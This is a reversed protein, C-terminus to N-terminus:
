KNPKKKEEEQQQQQMQQQMQEQMQQQMMPNMQQPPADKVDNIEVDFVLNSFPPLDASQAQPGYGLMSPILVKGKGGKGFYPMADSLGQISGSHTGVVFEYPATHGKTTDMNTDFVKGTTLLYGRYMVSVLKGSDAKLAADGANEIVVYAGSKTKVGKLNNKAMYAEVVKIENDKQIEQAKQYDALVDKEDKFIQLLKVKILLVQGKVLLPTYNEILKRSKLSDVSVSIVASDGVSMLPIVEMYSYETRKGTDLASYGPITGFTSQLVSDRDELKYEINFKIFEGAKPKETGSGKFIKYALGTPTKDYNMSCAVLSIAFLVVFTRKM